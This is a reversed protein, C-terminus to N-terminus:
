RNVEDRPLELRDIIQAWKSDKYRIHVGHQKDPYLGSYLMQEFSIPWHDMLCALNATTTDPLPLENSTYATASGSSDSKDM